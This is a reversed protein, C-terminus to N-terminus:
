ANESQAEDYSNKKKVTILLRTKQEFEDDSNYTTTHSTINVSVTMDERIILSFLYGLLSETMNEVPVSDSVSSM